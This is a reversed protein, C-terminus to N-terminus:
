HPSRGITERCGERRGQWANATGHNGGGCVQAVNGCRKGAPAVVSWWNGHFSHGHHFYFMAALGSLLLPGWCEFANVALLVSPWWVAVFRGANQLGDPVHVTREEESEPGGEWAPVVVETSQFVSTGQIRNLVPDALSILRSTPYWVRM